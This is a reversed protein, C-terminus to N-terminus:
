WYNKESQQFHTNLVTMNSFFLWLVNKPYDKIVYNISSTM